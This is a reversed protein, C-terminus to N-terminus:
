EELKQLIENVDEETQTLKKKCLQILFAARKVKESLVDVTITGDEMEQILQQLEDFAETYTLEKSM